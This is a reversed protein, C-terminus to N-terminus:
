EEKQQAVVTGLKQEQLRSKEGNKVPFYRNGNNCVSSDRSLACQSPAPLHDNKEEKILTGNNGNVQLRSRGQHPELSKSVGDSTSQKNGKKHGKSGKGTQEKGHGKGPGGVSVVQMGFSGRGRSSRSGAWQGVVMGAIELKGGQPPIPHLGAFGRSRGQPPPPMSGMARSYLSVPYLSPVMPPVFTPSPLLASPPPHNM